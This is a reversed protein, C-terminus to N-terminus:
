FQTFLSVSIGTGYDNMNEVQVNKEGEQEVRRARVREAM